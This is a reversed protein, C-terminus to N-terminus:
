STMQLLMMALLTFRSVNYTTPTEPETPVTSEIRM